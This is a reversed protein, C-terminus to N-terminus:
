GSSSCARSRRRREGTLTGVFYGVISGVIFVIGGM